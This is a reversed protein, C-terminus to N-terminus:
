EKRGVIWGLADWLFFLLLLGGFGALIAPILVAFKWNAVTRLHLESPGGPLFDEIARRVDDLNEPSTMTRSVGTAGVLVLDGVTEPTQLDRGDHADTAEPRETSSKVGKLKEVTQGRIPVWWLLRQEVRVSVGETARHLVLSYTPALLTMLGAFGVFFAAVGLVALASKGRSM